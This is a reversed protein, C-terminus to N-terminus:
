TNNFTENKLELWHWRRWTYFTSFFILPNPIHGALLLGCHDELFPRRKASQKKWSPKKNASRRKYSLRKTPGDARTNDCGSRIFGSWSGPFWLNVRWCEMMGEGDTRLSVSVYSHSPATHTHPPYLLSVSWYFGYPFCVSLEICKFVHAHIDKHACLGVWQGAWQPVNVSM